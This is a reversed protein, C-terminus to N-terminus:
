HGSPSPLVVKDHYLSWFDICSWLHLNRLGIKTFFSLSSQQHSRAAFPSRRKYPTSLEYYPTDSRQVWTAGMNGAGRHVRRGANNEDDPMSCLASNNRSGLQCRNEKEGDRNQNIRVFPTRGVEAAYRNCQFM